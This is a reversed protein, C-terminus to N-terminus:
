LNTSMSHFHDMLTERAMFRVRARTSNRKTENESITVVIVFNLKHPGATWVRALGTSWVHQYRLRVRVGKELAVHTSILYGNTMRGYVGEGGLLSAGGELIVLDCRGDRRM